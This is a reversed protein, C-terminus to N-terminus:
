VGPLAHAHGLTRWEPGKMRAAKHATETPPAILSTAPGLTGTAPQGVLLEPSLFPSTVDASEGWSRPGPCCLRRAPTHSHLDEPQPGRSSQAPWRRRPRAPGHGREREAPSRARGRVQAWSGRATGSGDETGKRGGGPGGVAWRNAIQGVQSGPTSPMERAAPM